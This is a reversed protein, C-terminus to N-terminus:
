ITRRWKTTGVFTRTEVLGLTELKDIARTITRLSLFPITKNIEKLSMRAFLHGEFPVGKAECQHAIVSHVIAASMGAKQCLKIDIEM